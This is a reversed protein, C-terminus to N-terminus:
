GEILVKGYVKGAVILLSIGRFSTCEYKGGKGKCLPVVCTSTWDIPVMSSLFCANLLRVLWEVVM